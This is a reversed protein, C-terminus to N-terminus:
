NFNEERKYSSLSWLEAEICHESSGGALHAGHQVRATYGWHAGTHGLRGGQPKHQRGWCDMLDGSLGILLLSEEGEASVGPVFM